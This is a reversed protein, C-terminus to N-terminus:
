SGFRWIEGFEPTSGDVLFGIAWMSRGSPVSALAGPESALKGKTPIAATSWHGGSYHAFQSGTPGKPGVKTTILWFGGHGNSAIQNAVGISAPVTVTSWHGNWHLLEFKM